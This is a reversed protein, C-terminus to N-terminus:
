SKKARDELEWYTIWARGRTKSDKRIYQGNVQDRGNSTRQQSLMNRECKSCWLGLYFVSGRHPLAQSIGVEKTVCGTGGFSPQYLIKYRATFHAWHLYTFWFGRVLKVLMRCCLVNLNVLSRQEFVGLLPITRGISSSMVHRTNLKPTLSTQTWVWARCKRLFCENIHHKMKM